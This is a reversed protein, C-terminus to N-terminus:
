RARRYRVLLRGVIASEAVPGFARSDESASPNDGEVWWGGAVQRLARKVILLDTRHPHRLAIVDGPRVRQTRRVVWWDGSSTTPLMSDGAIAVTTLGFM